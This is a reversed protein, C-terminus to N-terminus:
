ILLNKQTSDVYKKNLSSIAWGGGGLFISVCRCMGSLMDSTSKAILRELFDVTVTSVVLSLCSYTCLFWFRIFHDWKLFFVCFICVFFRIRFCCTRTCRYASSVHISIFGGTSWKWLHATLFDPSACNVFLWLAGCVFHAPIFSSDVVTYSHLIQIKLYM